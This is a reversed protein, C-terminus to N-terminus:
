CVVCRPTMNGGATDVMDFCDLTFAHKFGSSEERAVMLVPFAQDSKREGQCNCDAFYVAWQNAGHSPFTLPQPLFEKGILTNGSLQIGGGISSFVRTDASFQKWMRAFFDQFEYPSHGRFCKFLPNKLRGSPDFFLFHNSDASRLVMPHCFWGGPRIQYSMRHLLTARNETRDIECKQSLNEARSRLEDVRARGTKEVNALEVQLQTAEKQAAELATQLPALASRHNEPTAASTAAAEAAAEAAEVQQKEAALTALRQEKEALRESLLHSADSQIQNAARELEENKRDAEQTERRLSDVALELEKHAYNSQLRFRCLTDLIALLQEQEWTMPAGRLQAKLQAKLESSQAELATKKTEAERMLEDKRQASWQSLGQEVERYKCLTQEMAQQQATASQRRREMEENITAQLRTLKDDTQQLQTRSTRLAALNTAYEQQIQANEETQKRLLAERKQQESTNVRTQEQIRESLGVCETRVERLQREIEAEQTACTQHEKQLQQTKTEFTNCRQQLDLRTKAWEKQENSLIDHLQRIKQEKVHDLSQRQQYQYGLTAGVILGTGVMTSLWEHIM